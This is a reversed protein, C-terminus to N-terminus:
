SAIEGGLSAAILPAARRLLAEAALLARSDGRMKIRGAALLSTVQSRGSMLAEGTAFDEILTVDAPETSSRSLAASGDERLLITYRIEGSPASVAGSGEPVGTIVQGLALGVTPREAPSDARGLRELASALAAFWEESLFEPM